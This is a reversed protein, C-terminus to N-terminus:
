QTLVLAAAAAAANSIFVAFDISNLNLMSKCFFSFSVIALTM